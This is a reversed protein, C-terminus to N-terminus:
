FHRQIKACAVPVTYPFRLLTNQLFTFATPLNSRNLQGAFMVFHVACGRLSTDCCVFAKGFDFGGALSKWTVEGKGGGGGGGGQEKEETCQQTVQCM